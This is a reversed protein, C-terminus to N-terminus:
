RHLQPMGADNLTNQWQEEFADWQEETAVYGAVTFFRCKPDVVSGSADLYASVITM